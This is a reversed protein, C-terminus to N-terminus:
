LPGNKKHFLANLLQPLSSLSHKSSTVAERKKAPEAWTIKLRTRLM